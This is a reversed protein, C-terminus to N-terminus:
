LTPYSNQYIISNEKPLFKRTTSIFMMYANKM